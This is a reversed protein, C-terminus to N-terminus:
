VSPSNGRRGLMAAGLGALILAAVPAGWRPWAPVPPPPACSSGSFSCTASGGSPVNASCSPPAWASCVGSITVTHSGAATAFTFPTTHGSPSGDLTISAGSPSSTLQLSGGSSGVACSADLGGWTPCSDATPIPPNAPLVTDFSVNDFRVGPVVARLALKGDSVISPDFGQIRPTTENDMFVQIVGNPFRDVDISHWALRSLHPTACGIAEQGPGVGGNSVLIIRDMGNDSNDPGLLVWYGTGGVIQFILGVDARADDPFYVDCHYHGYGASLTSHILVDDLQTSAVALGGGFGSVLQWGGCQVSWDSITGDEFDDNFAAAARFTFSCITVAAGVVAPLFWVLSLRKPRM